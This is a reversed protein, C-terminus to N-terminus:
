CSASATWRFALTARTASSPWGSRNSPVMSASTGTSREPEPLLGISEYYRITPVKVGTAASLKGISLM